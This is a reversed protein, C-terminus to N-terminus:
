FEYAVDITVRRQDKFDVATAERRVTGHIFIWDLPTGVASPRQTGGTIAQFVRHVEYNM